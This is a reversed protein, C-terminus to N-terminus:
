ESEYAIESMDNSLNIEGIEDPIIQYSGYKGIQLKMHGKFIVTYANTIKVIDGVNIDDVQENWLTIKIIGSEDGITADCVRLRERSSQSYFERAESKELVKVKLNVNKSKPTLQSIKTDISKQM